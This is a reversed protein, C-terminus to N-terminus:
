ILKSMLYQDKFGSSLHVSMRKTGEIVFGIKQYLRIAFINETMVTLELRKIGINKAWGELSLLLKEGLKNGTYAQRIDMVIELSYRDRLTTSRRGATFGVLESDRTDEIVYVAVYESDESRALRATQEELTISREGPEYLM